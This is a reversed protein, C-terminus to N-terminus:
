LPLISLFVAYTESTFCSHLNERKHFRVKLGHDQAYALDKGISDFNIVFQEAKGAEVNQESGQWNLLSDPKMENGM